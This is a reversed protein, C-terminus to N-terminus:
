SCLLCRLETSELKELEFIAQVVEKIKDASLSRSAMDRFKDIIEKDTMRFQEPRWNGKQYQTESSFTKGKTLVEVSMLMSSPDKLLALGYANEDFGIDFEVRELFKIIRPDRRVAPDLWHARDIRHAACTMLYPADFVLDEETRRRNEQSFRWRRTPMVKAKVKEIDDPQLNNEEIIHIFNDM